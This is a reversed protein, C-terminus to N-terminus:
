PAPAPAGQIELLELEFVLTAGPRILPPFGTDGYATEPPCVLKSTGGVRMRLIGQSFCPVVGSLAFTAPEGGEERSTDFLTGDRLTGRYHVRVTDTAQPAAGSGPQQEFYIVGSDLPVAGREGAVSERFLRGAEKEKDIAASKRQALYDDIRPGFAELDIEPTRGLVGDALGRQVFAVDAPTLDYNGLSRSLAVGITYLIKQEDSELGPDAAPLLPAALACAVLCASVTRM